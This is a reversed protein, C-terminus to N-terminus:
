TQFLGFRKKARRWTFRLQRIAQDRLSINLHVQKTPSNKLLDKTMKRHYLGERLAIRGSEPPPFALQEGTDVYGIRSYWVSLEERCSLVYIVTRRCGFVNKSFNEVLAILQGALGQNQFDPHVALMQLIADGNDKAQAFTCGVLRRDAVTEAVIIDAENWDAINELEQVSILTGGILDHENKWAVSAQGGRYATWLLNELQRADSKKALRFNYAKM